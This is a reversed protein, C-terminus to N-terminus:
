VTEHGEVEALMQTVLECPRRVPEPIPPTRLAELYRHMKKFTRARQEPRATPLDQLNDFMDALKCVKVQWSARAIQAEYASEREAEQLRSDKSLAAVWSAVEAGFREEVFSGPSASRVDM